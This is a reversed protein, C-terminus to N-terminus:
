SLSELQKEINSQLTQLKGLAKNVDKLLSKAQDADFSEFSGKTIRESTATDVAKILQKMGKAFPPLAPRGSSYGREEGEREEERAKRVEDQFERSPTGKSVADKALKLKLKADKVPVLMRHHTVPLAMAIESPLAKVQELIRVSYWLGSASIHLPSEEGQATRILEGFTAHKGGWENFNELNGDFFRGLIYEGVACATEVSKAAYLRNLEGIVELLLGKDVGGIGPLEPFESKDAKALATTNKKAM